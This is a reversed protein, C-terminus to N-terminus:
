NYVRVEFSTTGFLDDAFSASLNGAYLQVYNLTSTWNLVAGLTGGGFSIFVVTKGVTFLGSSNFRYNGVSQYSWTPLVGLTNEMVTMTPANTGAQNITATFVKYPRSDTAITGGNSLVVIRVDGAPNVSFTVDVTTTTRNDLDAFLQEGSVVDWLEVMIDTTNLDHTITNAVSVTGPTFTESYGVNGLLDKIQAGSMKRSVYYTATHVGSQVGSTTDIAAGGATASVQFENATLGTSIVYYNASPTINNPLAGTTTFVVINNAVLGHATVTVVGPNASTMTATLSNYDDIWFEDLDDIATGAFATLDTLRTAM